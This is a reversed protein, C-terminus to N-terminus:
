LRKCSNKYINMAIELFALEENATKYEELEAIQQDLETAESANYDTLKETIELVIGKAQQRVENKINQAM